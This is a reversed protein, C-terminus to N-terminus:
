RRIWRMALYGIGFAIGVAAIPHAKITGGLKRLASSSNSVVTDKAGIMREKLAGARESGFDVLGQVSQKLMDLRDEFTAAMQNKVM